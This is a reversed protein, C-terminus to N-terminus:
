EDIDADQEGFGPVGLAGLAPPFAAVMRGITEILRAKEYGDLLRLFAQVDFFSERNREWTARLARV